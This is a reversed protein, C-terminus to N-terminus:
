NTAKSFLMSLHLAIEGNSIVHLVGMTGCANGITQRFWLIDGDIRNEAMDLEKGKDQETRYREYAETVPFV